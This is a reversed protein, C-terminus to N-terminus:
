DQPTMLQDFFGVLFEGAEARDPMATVAGYMGALGQPAEDGAALVEATCDRLDALFPEVIPEHVPTVMLHLAAPKQQANMHWGRDDMAQALAFVNGRELTFAFVSMAPEGLIALGDIAAIGGRLRDTVDMIKRALELYGAEGLHMMAAWAAAIAGGPRTGTMTPSVFLGGPWDAYAHFQKKRLEATRYMVASAGKAAFGYKHTDASISTVGAVRFDWPDVERGLKELWPLLYGGLCADTHFLVDREAAIAAMEPIPDIVGHPYSPASGVVLVTSDSIASRVAEVDARFDDGVPTHVAEVDFYHAAKEFAPHASVPLVMEPARLGPNKSRAWDRATKVAMLISETGGSTLSGRAEPGGHLMEATMSVVENEFRRLSEFAIPTNGNESFSGTYAQKLLESHEDSHHYVYAWTKGGRWDADASRARELQQLVDERPSGNGPIKM